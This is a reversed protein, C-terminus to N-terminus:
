YHDQTKLQSLDRLNIQYTTLANELSGDFKAAKKVDIGLGTSCDFWRQKDMPINKDYSIEVGSELKGDEPAPVLLGLAVKIAFIDKGIEGKFRPGFTISKDRHYIDIKYTM